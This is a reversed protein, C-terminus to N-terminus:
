GVLFTIEKRRFVEADMSVHYGKKNIPDVRKGFSTLVDVFGHRLSSYFTLHFPPPKTRYSRLRCPCHSTTETNHLFGWWGPKKSSKRRWVWSLWKYRLEVTKVPSKQRKLQCITKIKGHFTSPWVPLLYGSEASTWVRVTPSEIFCVM